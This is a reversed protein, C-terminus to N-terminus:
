RRQAAKSPLRNKPLWIVLGVKEVKNLAVETANIATTGFTIMAEGTKRMTISDACDLVNQVQIHEDGVHAILESLKM